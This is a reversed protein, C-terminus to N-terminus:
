EIAISESMEPRVSSDQDVQLNVGDSTVTVTGEDTYYASCRCSELLALTEEEVRSREAGATLVAYKPQVKTFLDRLKKNYDGHHPMKILDWRKQALASDLLEETRQKQADGMLLIGNRNNTVATILSYNNDNEYSVERPADVYFEIGELSFQYNQRLRRSATETEGLAEMLALYPESNEQYDPMLVCGVEYRRLLKAASGIHDKDFHSLILYEIRQTQLSDMFECIMEQDDEDAADNVVVSEGAEIVICDSKGTDLFTMKLLAPSEEKGCGFLAATLLLMLLVARWRVKM